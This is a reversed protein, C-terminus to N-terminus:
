STNNKVREILEPHCLYDASSIGVLRDLLDLETMMGIHTASLAVIRKLENSHIANDYSHNGIYYTYDIEGSEPLIIQLKVYDSYRIIRFAEAYDNQITDGVQESEFEQKTDQVGCSVVFCGLLFLLILKM